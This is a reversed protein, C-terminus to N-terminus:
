GRLARLAARAEPIAAPVAAASAAAAALCWACIARHKSIQEVTLYAAGIADLALKTAALLPVVPRTQARDAAGMGVLALTVGYNTLALAADPTLLYFYAEGSADVKSSDVGPLPPDPLRRVLGAQYATVVGMTASAGLMLAMQRRRARLVPGTGRRLDDSVREAAPSTPRGIGERRGRAEAASLRDSADSRSKFRISRM